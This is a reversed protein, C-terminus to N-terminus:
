LVGSLREAVDFLRYFLLTLSNGGFQACVSNNVPQSPAARAPLSSGTRQEPRVVDCNNGDHFNPLESLSMSSPIELDPLLLPPHPPVWRDARMARHLIVPAPKAEYGRGEDM